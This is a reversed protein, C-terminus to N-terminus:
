KRPVPFCDFDNAVDAFPHYRRAEDILTQVQEGSYRSSVHTLILRKVGHENALKAVEKATSHYYRYALDHLSDSFTAEHVLVDANAILKIQAPCARTDGMITVVRGPISEGVYDASKITRGDDLTVDQGSKLRAYIPGPPIGDRKLKESLLRGPLPLETIRYGFCEVRHELRAAEVIWREDEYVTGEDIEVVNWTFDLHSSSVQLVTELFHRLGRPGFITIPTKGGQYSRSTLLGPLGYLHDGHLHTIFVFELRSLKLPSKLIQHQTGEGCDFLWFTGREELLRLAVSSVNREISPTGAVTGLFYLDM